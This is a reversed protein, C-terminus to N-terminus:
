EEEDRSERWGGLINEVQEVDEDSVGERRRYRRKLSDLVHEWMARTPVLGRTWPGRRELKWRFRWEGAFKEACLFRRQGTEPDADTWKIEVHRGAEETGQSLRDVFAQLDKPLPMSWHQERGKAPHVFGLECAHLALRPAGSPDPLPEEGVKRNYVKEGCVPHGLEALHIRIQHTRGTELRCSVLTYGVLPKEVEVHTVATKGVGPLRTSGRRGDGRDRVLHTAIRRPRVVGPVVALYRRLVTHAHFQRGLERQALASRAFVVLGSTEKDLRHVVRLRPLTTKGTKGQKKAILVPVIDELTPSLAKRRSPWNREAPHRVTAIGSPKEVVAVHEDLHRLIITEEQRSKKAPASLLELAQGERLRRAPDLCVDGDIKVHRSAVLRRIATWTLGPRQVRLWKALTFGAHEKTITITESSM